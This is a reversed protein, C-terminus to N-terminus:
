PLPYFRILDVPCCVGRRISGTIHHAFARTSWAAQTRVDVIAVAKLDASVVAWRRTGAALHRDIEAADAFMISPLDTGGGDPGFTLKGSGRVEVRFEGTCKGDQDHPYVFLDGSDRKAIQFPPVFVALGRRWCFRAFAFVAISSRDLAAIHEDYYPRARDM